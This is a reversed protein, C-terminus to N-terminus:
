LDELFRATQPFQKLDGTFVLADLKLATEEM